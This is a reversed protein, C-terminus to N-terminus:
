LDVIYHMIIFCEIYHFIVLYQLSVVPYLVRHAYEICKANPSTEGYAEQSWKLFLDVM